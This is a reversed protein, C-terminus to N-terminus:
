GLSPSALVAGILDAPSFPRFNVHSSNVKLDNASARLGMPEMANLDRM